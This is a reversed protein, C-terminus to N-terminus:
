ALATTLNGSNDVTIKYRTGGPSTLIVGDSGAVEFNGSVKGNGIIEIKESPTNTGIGFNGNEVYSNIVKFDSDEITTVSLSGLQWGDEAEDATYINEDRGIGFGFTHNAQWDWPLETIPRDNLLVAMNDGYKRVKLIHNVTENPFTFPKVYDLRPNSNSSYSQDGHLAHNWEAAVFPGRSFDGWFIPNSGGRRSRILCQDADYSIRILDYNNSDVYNFICKFTSNVSTIDSKVSNSLDWVIEYNNPLTTNSTAIEGSNNTIFAGEKRAYGGGGVVIINADANTSYQITYGSGIDPTHAALDTDSAETFSDNHVVTGSPILRSDKLSVEGNVIISGEIKQDGFHQADGHTRIISNSYKNGAILISELDGWNRTGFQAITRASRGLTDSGANSQQSGDNEIRFETGATNNYGAQVFARGRFSDAFCNGTTILSKGRVASRTEIDGDAYIEGNVFTDSDVSLAEAVLVGSVRKGDGISYQVVRDDQSIVYFNNSSESIYFQCPDSPGRSVPLNSHSVYSLTTVDYPTSMSFMVIHETTFAGILHSGDSAVWLGFLDKPPSNANDGAPWGPFLNSFSNWYNAFDFEGQYTANTDFTWASNLTLHHVSDTSYDGIYVNIGNDSIYLSMPLNGFGSIYDSILWDTDFTASALDWATSLSYIQIRNEDDDAIFLKTGDTKFIISRPTNASPPNLGTAIYDSQQVATTVDWATSLDYQFIRDRGEDSIFMRTGDPKFFLGKPISLTQVPNFTSNNETRAKFRYTRPDYPETIEVDTLDGISQALTLDENVWKSSGSDYRLIQSDSLSSIQTDLLESITDIAPPPSGGTNGSTGYLTAFYLQGNGDTKLFYDTGGDSSPLVYEQNVTVSGEETVRFVEADGGNKVIFAKYPENNDQDLEIVFDGNSQVTLPGAAQGVDLPRILKTSSGTLLIDGSVTVDGSSSISSFSPNESISLVTIGNLESQTLSGTTLIPLSANVWEGESFDYKLIQGEALSSINVDALDQVRSTSVPYYPAPSGGTGPSSSVGESTDEAEIARILVNAEYGDEDYHELFLDLGKLHYLTQAVNYEPPDSGEILESETLTYLENNQVATFVVDAIRAAETYTNSYCFVSIEFTGYDATNLDNIDFSSQQIIVEPNQEGQFRAGVSVRIHSMTSEAALADRVVEYV